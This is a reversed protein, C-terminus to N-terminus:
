RGTYIGESLRYGAPALEEWPSPENMDKDIRMFFKTEYGPVPRLSNQINLYAPNVGPANIEPSPRMRMMSTPNRTLIDWARESDAYLGHARSRYRNNGTRETLADLTVGLNNQVVMLREALELQQEDNTAMIPPLRSRDAELMELLRDYYGQAAFYNGRMYSVNGLAYLIRRNPPIERYAAFLRDLAPGWQRLQYHAAGMRYQIEPPAWGNQEGLRYYDLARQWDGEKIFYELDGLDAYVMGFEPSRTLLRRSLGDEYINVAKVLAEEAPFFERAEVLVEGYRRLTYIHYKIRKPTEERAADFVRVALDLTLKEDNHNEFFHYYRALHYYTEPLMSDQRVARLLIDRIGGISDLYANPVGKVKEYRKDLLYGGLEALASASINRKTSGMFYTQLALVEELNDTRIFYKLMRELLPDSRGYKEMYRAYSERADELRERDYEGWVLANDGLALLADRDLPNYDLINRRLINDASQYDGIYNTELDAYELVAKKEPIRRKNKSATFYLLEQYKEEALTYQRADRFARAYKYFWTKNRHIKYAERFRENAMGYEGAEIREIGLKYIGDARIPTYIFKWCLYGVSFAVLAIMMFLRFVPLFNHVFIYAFSSQEEEMAEGTKKEFGKPIPITKDMIQGALSATEKASAGNILLKILRSMKDPAVAMEAIIEECAIRLNLPYSSLTAHLQDLEEDTLSIEEVEDGTDRVAGRSAGPRKGFTSDMGPISFDDGFGSGFEDDGGLDFNGALADADMNFNDFSDGPIEELIAGTDFDAAEGGLDFGDEDDSQEIATDDVAATEVTGPEEIGLDEDGLDEAGFDEDLAMDESVAFEEDPFDPAFDSKFGSLDLSEKDIAGEVPESPDEGQLELSNELDFDPFEESDEGAPFDPLEDGTPFDPIQSDELVEEVTGEGTDTEDLAFETDLPEPAELSEEAPFDEVAFDDTDFDTSQFDLDEALADEGRETEIEEALGDLLEPPTFDDPISDIFESLSEEQGALEGQESLLEDTGNDENEDAFGASEASDEFTQNEMGGLLDGLDGFDIFDSEGGERAPPPSEDAQMDDFGDNSLPSFSEDYSEPFSEDTEPPRPPAAVPEHEPLPLDDYPQDLEAM